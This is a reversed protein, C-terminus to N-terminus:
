KYIRRYYIIYEVYVQSADYLVYEKFTKRCKERDGLISNYEGSTVQEQLKNGDPTDEDNYLVMGGVVRCLLVCCTGDIGEKAYEDAKTICDAFYTGKGYLTGTATGALSMTFDDAAIKEAAEHSTGHFLFWENVYDRLKHRAMLRTAKATLPSHQVFPKASLSLFTYHRKLFYGTWDHYNENKMAKEFKYWKPVKNVGTAKRDRTWVNKYTVQMLQKFDEFHVPDDIPIRQNHKKDTKAGHWDSPTACMSEDVDEFGLPLDANRSRAWQIFEPFSVEGNGDQDLSDWAKLKAAKSEYRGGIVQTAVEYFRDVDKIFGTGDPDCYQFVELLTEFKSALISKEPVQVTITSGPVADPPMRVQVMRGDPAKFRLLHNRDAFHPVKLNVTNPKELKELGEKEEPKPEPVKVTIMTGPVSGPPVRIGVMRGDPAKFRILDNEGTGDPVRLQVQSPDVVPDPPPLASDSSEGCGM